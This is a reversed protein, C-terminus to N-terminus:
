ANLIRVGVTLNFDLEDFTFSVSGSYVTITKYSIAPYEVGATTQFYVDIVSNASISADSITLTTQGAVLTGTKLGVLSNKVANAVVGAASATAQAATVDEASGYFSPLEGGLKESDAAIAATGGNTLVTMLTGTLICFVNSGIVYAGSGLAEGTVLLATVQVGDVTFTDGATYNATAVFRFVPNTKARVLAHVTGTLLETATAVSALENDHMVEDIKEYNPVDVVLPNVVDSGEALNLEYYTSQEM